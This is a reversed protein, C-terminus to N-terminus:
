TLLLYFMLAFPSPGLLSMQLVTFTLHYFMLGYDAEKKCDLKFDLDFPKMGSLSLSLLAKGSLILPILSASNNRYSIHNLTFSTLLSWFVSGLKICIIMM